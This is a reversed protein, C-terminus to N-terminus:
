RVNEASATHLEGDLKSRPGDNLFRSPDRPDPMRLNPYTQLNSIVFRATWADMATKTWRDGMVAELGSIKQNVATEVQSVRTSVEALSTSIASLTAQAKWGFVIAALFCAAFAGVTLKLKADPAVNLMTTEDQTKPTTYKDLLTLFLGNRKYRSGRPTQLIDEAPESM